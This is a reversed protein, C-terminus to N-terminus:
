LLPARARQDDENGEKPCVRVARCGEQAPPSLDPRLVQAFCLPVNGERKRSAVGRQICDLISNAKQAAFACQQSMDLMHINM